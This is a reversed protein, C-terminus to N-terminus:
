RGLQELATRLPASSVQIMGEFPRDLELILFVASSVALACALLASFVTANSPAFLSFSALILTLWCVMLVLFPTPISSGKQAFMLLRTQAIDIGTKM